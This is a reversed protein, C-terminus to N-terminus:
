TGAGPIRWSGTRRLTRESRRGDWATYRLSVPRRRRAAKMVAAPVATLGARRGAVLGLV